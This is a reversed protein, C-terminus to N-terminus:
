TTTGPLLQPEIARRAPPNSGLVDVALRGMARFDYRLCSIRADVAVDSGMVSLVGVQQPCALGAARAGAVLLAAVNDEPCVLATRRSAGRVRDLLAARGSDTGAAVGEALRERCCTEDVAQGLATFFEGVAPDGTFPEVPIIREFGRGLLHALAKLAGARFDARVGGFDELGCTRYLMVAPKLRARFTRLAEDSWVHDLVFGGAPGGHRDLFDKLIIRQQAVSAFVPSEHTDPHNVLLEDHWLLMSRHLSGCGHSIGELLERYQESALELRRLLCAVPKPRDFLLRASAPFFRGSVPHQWIRGERAFRQLLRYATAGAVRHRRGLERTTPLPRDTPAEAVVRLIADAM